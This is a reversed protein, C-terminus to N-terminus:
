WLSPASPRLASVSMTKRCARALTCRISITSISSSWDILLGAANVLRSSTPKSNADRDLKGAKGRDCNTAHYPKIQARQQVQLDETCTELQHM